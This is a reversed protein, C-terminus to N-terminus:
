EADDNHFGNVETRGCRKCFHNQPCIHRDPEVDRRCDACYATRGCEHEDSAPQSCQACVDPSSRFFGDIDSFVPERCGAALALLLLTARGNM